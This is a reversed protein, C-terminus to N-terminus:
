PFFARAVDYLAPSVPKLTAVADALRVRAMEGGRFAVMSGWDGDHVADIAAIGYWSCLVRDLASPTGGRQVHGLVTVRTDFGTRAEIEAAVVQGIGGLRAHGYKDIEPEPIDLTGEKPRAGEAVVVISAWRGREHRRTIAAAVTDIDFPEEPVLTLTAGGAIGAWTAIHGVHRGMVEVVMVRDHSEATTHLRDIAATAVGVATDFGFTPETLGIDNDITKPVGVVKAAGAENIAVGASLTGEGGIVILADTGTAEMTSRVRDVGDEYMRPSIRSTGLVTGGRPLTGRMREVDLEIFESELLGRWGDLFGVVTDGYEREAKRVIARIVANLGPCDGGGTLVGVRM